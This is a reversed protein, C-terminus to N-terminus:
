ASTQEQVSATVKKAVATRYREGVASSHLMKRALEEKEGITHDSKYFDDIRAHRILSVTTAKGTVQDFARSIAHCLSNSNGKYIYNSGGFGGGNWHKRLLDELDKPIEIEVRGYTKSSKYEQFIFRGPTVKVRSKCESPTTNLETSGFLCYNKDPQVQASDTIYAMQAWDARVPDIQTYLAILILKEFELKNNGCLEKAKIYAQQLEPWTLMKKLRAEPLTQSKEKVEKAARIASAAATYLIADPTGLAFHRLAAFYGNQTSVNPYTAKIYECAAQVTYNEGVKEVINKHMATYRALSSAVPM